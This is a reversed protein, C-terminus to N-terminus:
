PGDASGVMIAVEDAGVRFGVIGGDLLGVIEGDIAAGELIGSLLGERM